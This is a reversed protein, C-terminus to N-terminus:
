VNHSVFKLGLNNIALTSHLLVTILSGLVSFGMRKRLKFEREINAFEHKPESEVKSDMESRFNASVNSFKDSWICVNGRFLWVSKRKETLKLLDLDASQWKSQSAVHESLVSLCSPLLTVDASLYDFITVACCNPSLITCMMCMTKLIMCM